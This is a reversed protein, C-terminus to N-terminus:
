RDEKLFEYVRSMDIFRLTSEDIPRGELIDGVLYYFETSFQTPEADLQTYYCTHIARILKYREIIERVLKSPRGSM